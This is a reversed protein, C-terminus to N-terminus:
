DQDSAPGDRGEAAAEGAAREREAAAYALGTGVARNSYAAGAVTLAVVSPGVGIVLLFWRLKEGLAHAPNLVGVLAMAAGVALFVLIWGRTSV